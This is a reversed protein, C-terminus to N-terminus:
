FKVDFGSIIISLTSYLNRVFGYLQTMPCLPSNHHYYLPSLLSKIGLVHIAHNAGTFRTVTMKINIDLFVLLQVNVLKAVRTLLKFM